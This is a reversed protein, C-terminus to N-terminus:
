ETGRLARVVDEMRMGRSGKVLVSWAANQQEPPGIRQITRADCAAGVPVASSLIVCVRQAAELNSPARYLRSASFGAALAADAMWDGRPGRTILWDAVGAARRGIERHAAEEDPGLELM